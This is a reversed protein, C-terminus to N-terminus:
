SANPRAPARRRLLGAVSGIGLAERYRLCCGTLLLAALLLHLVLAPVGAGLTWRLLLGPLGVAVAVLVVPLLLERVPIRVTLVRHVQWTALGVDVAITLAWALAAGAIGFLPVLLLNGAVNTVLAAAKNKMQWSSQGGMLLITQVMGAGTWVFMAVCLVVLSGTGEGFGGGFLTLVLPAFLAMTLYFPWALLIMARTTMLHLSRAQALDGTAMAASIRPSVAMRM